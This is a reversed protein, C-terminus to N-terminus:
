NVRRVSAGEAFLLTVVANLQVFKSTLVSFKIEQSVFFHEFAHLKYERRLPELIPLLLVLQTLADIRGIRGDSDSYDEM